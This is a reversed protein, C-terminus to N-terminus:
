LALPTYTCPPSAQVLPHTDYHPAIDENAVLKTLQQQYNPTTAIEEALEEHGVRVVTPVLTRSVDYKRHGPVDINYWDGKMVQDLGVVKDFHASYNGGSQSPELALDSGPSIMGAGKAWYSLVCAMRADIHGQVKLDVVMNFFQTACEQPSLDERMSSDSDSDIDAYSRQEFGYQRTAWPAAM